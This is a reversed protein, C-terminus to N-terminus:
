ELSCCLFSSSFESLSIIMKCKQHSAADFPLPLWRNRMGGSHCGGLSNILYVFICCTSTKGFSSWSCIPSTYIHLSISLTGLIMVKPLRFQFKYTVSSLESSLNEHLGKFNSFKSVTPGANRKLKQPTHNGTLNKMFHLTVM